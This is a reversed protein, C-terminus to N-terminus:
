KIPNNKNKSYRYIMYVAAAALLGGGVIYVYTMTDTGSSTPARPPINFTPPSSYDTGTQGGINGEAAAGSLSKVQNSYVQLSNSIDSLAAEVNIGADTFGEVSGSSIVANADDFAKQLSNRAGEANAIITEIEIIKKGTATNCLRNIEEVTASAVDKSEIITKDKILEDIQLQLVEMNSKIQRIRQMVTTLTRINSAGLLSLAVQNNTIEIIMGEIRSIIGQGQNTLFRLSVNINELINLTKTTVQQFKQLQAQACSGATETHARFDAGTLTDYCLIDKCAPCAAFVSSGDETVIFQFHYFTTNTTISNNYVPVFEYEYNPSRYRYAGALVDLGWQFQFKMPQVENQRLKTFDIPIDLGSFILKRLIAYLTHEKESERYSTISASLSSSDDDIRYQTTNIFLSPYLAKIAPILSYTSGNGFHIRAVLKLGMSGPFNSYNIGEYEGFLPSQTATFQMAEHIDKLFIYANNVQLRNANNLPLSGWTQWNPDFASKQLETSIEPWTLLYSGTWPEYVGGPPRFLWPKQALNRLMTDLESSTMVGAGPVPEYQGGIIAFTSTLMNPVRIKITIEHPKDSLCNLKFGINGSTDVLSDLLVWNDIRKTIDYKRENNEIYDLKSVVNGVIPYLRKELTIEESEGEWGKNAVWTGLAVGGVVAVLGLGLGREM